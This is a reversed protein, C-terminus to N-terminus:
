NKYWESRVGIGWWSTDSGDGKDVGIDCGEFLDALLIRDSFFWRSGPLFSQTGDSDFYRNTLLYSFQSGVFYTTFRQPHKGVRKLAYVYDLAGKESIPMNQPDIDMDVIICGGKNTENVIPSGKIIQSTSKPFMKGLLILGETTYVEDPILLVGRDYSRLEELEKSDINCSPVKFAHNIRKGGEQWFTSWTDNVLEPTLPSKKYREIADQIVPTKVWDQRRLFKGSSDREAPM